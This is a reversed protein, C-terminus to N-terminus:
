AIWKNKNRRRPALKTFADYILSIFELLNWLLDLKFNLKLKISTVDIHHRECDSEFFFCEWGSFCNRTRRSQTWMKKEVSKKARIVSLSCEWVISIEAEHCDIISNFQAFHKKEREGEHMHARQKKRDISLNNKLLASFFSTPTAHLRRDSQGNDVAIQRTIIPGSSLSRGVVIIFYFTYALSLLCKPWEVKVCCARAAARDVFLKDGRKREREIISVSARAFLSEASDVKASSDNLICFFWRTWFSNNAWTKKKEHTGSSLSHQPTVHLNDFMESLMIQANFRDLEPIRKMTARLSVVVARISRWDAIKISIWQISLQTRKKQKKKASHFAVRRLSFFFLEFPDHRMLGNFPQIISSIEWWSVSFPCQCKIWFFFKKRRKIQTTFSSQQCSLRTEDLVWFSYALMVTFCLLFFHVVVVIRLFHLDGSSRSCKCKERKCGSCCCCNLLSFIPLWLFFHFHSVNWSGWVCCLSLANSSPARLFVPFKERKSMFYLKRRGPAGEAEYSM